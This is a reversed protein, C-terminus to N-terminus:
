RILLKALDRLDSRVKPYALSLLKRNGFKSKFFNNATWREPDSTRAKRWASWVALRTQRVVKKARRGAATNREFADFTDRICQVDTRSHLRDVSTM